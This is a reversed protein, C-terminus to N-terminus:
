AAARISPEQSFLLCLTENEVWFFTGYPIDLTENATFFTVYDYEASPWCAREHVHLIDTAGNYMIRLSTIDFYGNKFGEFCGLLEAHNKWSLTKVISTM